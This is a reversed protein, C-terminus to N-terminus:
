GCPWGFSQEGVFSRLIMSIKQLSDLLDVTWLCDDIAPGIKALTVLTVGNTISMALRRIYKHSIPENMWWSVNRDGSAFPMTLESDTRETVFSFAGEGISNDIEVTWGELHVM